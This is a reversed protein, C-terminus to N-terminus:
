HLFHLIDIIFLIFIKRGNATTGVMTCQDGDKSSQMDITTDGAKRVKCWIPEDWCFRPQEFYACYHGDVVQVCDPADAPRTYDPKAPEPLPKADADPFVTLQKHDKFSLIHFHLAFLSPLVAHAGYTESSVPCVIEPM